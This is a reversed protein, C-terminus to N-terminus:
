IQPGILGPYSRKKKVVRFFEDWVRSMQTSQGFWADDDVQKVHFTTVHVSTYKPESEVSLWRLAVTSGNNLYYEFYALTGPQSEQLELIQEESFKSLM